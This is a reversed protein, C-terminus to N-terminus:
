RCAQAIGIEDCTTRQRGERHGGSGAASIGLFRRTDQTQAPGDFLQICVQVGTASVRGLVPWGESDLFNKEIM